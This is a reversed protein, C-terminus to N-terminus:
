NELVVRYRVRGDRVMSLGENVKAMPLKQIIPRVNKKAALQLIDKIDQICGIVSGRVRVARPVLFFPSIKVQDNPVGVMIFTGRKRVLTLYLDYPMDNADATLM